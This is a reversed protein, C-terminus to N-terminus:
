DQIDKKGEFPDLLHSNPLRIEMANMTFDRRGLDSEIDKMGNFDFTLKKRYVVRGEDREEDLLVFKGKIEKAFWKAFEIGSDPVAFDFDSLGMGLIANRIAGGVLHIGDKKLLTEIFPKLTSYIKEM